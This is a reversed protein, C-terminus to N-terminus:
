GLGVNKTKLSSMSPTPWGFQCGVGFNGDLDSMEQDPGASSVGLVLSKCKVNTQALRVSVWGLSRGHSTPSGHGRHDPLALWVAM